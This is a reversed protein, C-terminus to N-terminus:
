KCQSTAAPVEWSFLGTIRPYYMTFSYCMEDETNSGYKVPQGTNNNWACTTRIQDGGNVTADIPKWPQANFDWAPVSGMDINKGGQILTTSIKAGLNHMHPMAAFFHIGSFNNPVTIGCDISYNPSNPPITFRLNGFAMVDADNARLTPTTCLDIGSDDTEGELAQVNNYHLQVVYHKTGELPFGAEPPTALAAGGPAWGYLMRWTTAMGSPCAFPTSSQATPAELLLVHHVIKTNVIHPIMATIHRKQAETIDVGYCVYENAKDKPMTWKAAPRISRDPTCDATPTPLPSKYECTEDSRPTTQAWTQLTALDATGLRPNPPQPMPKQDDKVRAIVRDIMRGAGVPATLNEYTVLPMPAGFQVTPGHCQHCRQSLVDQVACPLGSKAPPTVSGDGSTGADSGPPPTASTSSCGVLVMAATLLGFRM